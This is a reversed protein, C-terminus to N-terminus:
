SLILDHQFKVPQKSLKRSMDLLSIGALTDVFYNNIISWNEKLDCRKSSKCESNNIACETISIPGEVAVIVQAISINEPASTLQYGGKIGRISTVLKADVLKKLLKRVTAVPIHLTQSLEDNTCLKDKTAVLHVAIRLAYDSLKGIKIM